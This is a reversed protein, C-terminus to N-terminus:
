VICGVIGAYGSRIWYGVWGLMGFVQLLVPSLFDLYTTIVCARDPFLKTLLQSESSPFAFPSKEPVRKNVM